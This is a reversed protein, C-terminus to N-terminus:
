ESQLFSVVCDFIVLHGCTTAILLNDDCFVSRGIKGLSDCFPHGLQEKVSIEGALRQEEYNSFVLQWNSSFSWLDAGARTTRFALAMVGEEGKHKSLKTQYNKIVKGESIM